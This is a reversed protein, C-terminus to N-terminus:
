CFFSFLLVPSVALALPLLPFPPRVCDPNRPKRKLISVRRYCSNQVNVLFPPLPLPYVFLRPPPAPVTVTAMPTVTVPLLALFRNTDHQM